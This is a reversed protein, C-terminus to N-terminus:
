WGYKKMCLIHIHDDLHTCAISACIPVLACHFLHVSEDNENGDYNDHHDDNDAVLMTLEDEDAHQDDDNQCGEDSQIHM